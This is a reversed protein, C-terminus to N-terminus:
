PDRLGAALRETIDFTDYFRYLDPHSYTREPLLPLRGGFYENFVIRFTNVQTMAPHLGAAEADVGPLRIANLIGFKQELEAGTAQHWTFGWEDRQYRAPFPGEDAQIIFIPAVDAEATARDIIGLLQSNLFELQRIYSEVDGQAAVQPRDMFSGDVNFVYPDHPLLLHAFVFKPSSLTPIPGNLAALETESHKRLVTWDWPDLAPGEEVFARMLTTRWFVSSFESEGEYRYIRDADVNSRTPEWWNAVHVYQYGLSKLLVPVALHDGLRRHIPGRDAGSSAEANLEATDVYEMDLVAVLSLPTKIYNAHAERAVYFGREELATYFASNDYGYTEALAEKSAYRDPVIYYIDPRTAPAASGIAADRLPTTVSGVAVGSMLHGGILVLNMVVAVAAVANLGRTVAEAWRRAVVILGLGIGALLVWCALLWLQSSLLEAAATWAHGYTFFLAGGLTALLGARVPDRLLGWLIALAVAMGGVSILLPSWLPDITVQDAANQAFLYLSPYAAVLIPHIPATDWSLPQRGVGRARSM